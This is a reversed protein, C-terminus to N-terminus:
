DAANRKGILKRCPRHSEDVQEEDDSDQVSEDEDSFGLTDFELSSADAQDYTVWGQLLIFEFVEYATQFAGNEVKTRPDLRKSLERTEETFERLELSSAEKSKKYERKLHGLLFQIWIVNTYPIHESWTHGNNEDRSEPGHWESPYMGRTSSFLHTRMRNPDFNANDNVASSITTFTPMYRRYANFQPHGDTGGFVTLDEELDYSATDGNQLTARSLGYDILTM